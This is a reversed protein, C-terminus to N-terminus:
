ELGEQEEAERLGLIRVPTPKRRATKADCPKARVQSEM